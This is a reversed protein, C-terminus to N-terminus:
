RFRIFRIVGIIVKEQNELLIQLYLESYSQMGAITITIEFGSESAEPIAHVEAVDPRYQNIRVETLIKDNCIVQLAVARAPKGIAWGAIPLTEGEIDVSSLPSDISFGLLKETVEDHHVEITELLIDAQYSPQSWIKSKNSRAPDCDAMLFKSQHLIHSYVEIDVRNYDQIFERILANKCVNKKLRRSPNHNIFDVEIAIDLQNAAVFNQLSKEYFETLGVMDLKSLTELVNDSRLNEQYVFHKSQHNQFLWSFKKLNYIFVDPDDLNANRLELCMDQISKPHTQFFDLGMDYIQIIWNVQSILQAFPERLFTLIFYEERAFNREFLSFHIHGSIFDLGRLHEMNVFSTADANLFGECHSAGVFNRELFKNFSSGATKGVHIFFIKRKM